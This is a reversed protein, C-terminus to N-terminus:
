FGIVTVPISHYGANGDGLQGRSNDGWCNMTGDLLIACTHNSGAEIAVATTIDSVPLPTSSSYSDTNYGLQGKSNNGWCHVTGDSLLACIHSSGATINTVSSLGPILDPTTPQIVSRDKGLQGFNNSGWCKVSGDFLLACTHDGGAVVSVAGSVDAVQVPSTSDAISEIGIQGNSNDGWCHVTGDAIVACSHSAGASISTVGSLGVVEIPIAQFLNALVNGLVGIRNLGWCRVTTDVIIACTHYDGGDLSTATSLGQVTVPTLARSFGGSGLMGFSNGGWCKVGGDSQLACSHREGTILSIPNSIGGVSVSMNSSITSGDGLQGTYNYGWCKVEHGSLIACTHNFGLSLAVASEIGNVIVPFSSFSSGQGNGLQGITNEGWCRIVGESVLACTHNTGASISTAGIIDNVFVPALTLSQNITGNGLQGTDNYGWCQVQGDSLTACGHSNGLTVTTATSINLVPVPISSDSLIGNLRIINRGWCEISGNSSVVCTRGGGSAISIASSVGQVQVPISSSTTTGDGLQGYANNGWCKVSGDKLLVCTHHFSGVISKANSIGGVTVPSFSDFTTGDGLQSFFNAGWCKVHGDALVACTHYIGSGISVADTISQVIVPMSSDLESTNGLQGYVNWGWCHVEGGSALACTHSVGGSVAIATKIVTVKVPTSSSTKTGDGLQGYFNYGWCEVNGGSIIACNHAGGSEIATPAAKSVLPPDISPPQDLSASSGGCGGLLIVLLTLHYFLPRIPRDRRM